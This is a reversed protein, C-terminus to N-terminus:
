KIKMIYALKVHQPNPVEIPTPSDHGIAFSASINEDSCWGNDRKINQNRSTARTGLFDFNNGNTGAEAKYFSMTVTSWVRPINRENLTITNSKYVQGNKQNLDQRGQIFSSRLDPTGNQGDCFAWGEPVKDGYFAVIAGVPLSVLENNAYLANNVDTRNATIKVLEKAGKLIKLEESLIEIQNKLKIFDATLTGITSNKSDLTNITASGSNLKDIKGQNAEFENVNLIESM